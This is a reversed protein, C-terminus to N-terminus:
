DRFRDVCPSQAHLGFPFPSLYVWSEIVSEHKWQYWALFEFLDWMDDDDLSCLGGFV